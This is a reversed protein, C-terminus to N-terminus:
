KNAPAAATVIPNVIFGERWIGDIVFPACGATTYSDHSGAELALGGLGAVLAQIEDHTLTCGIQLPFALSLNKLCTELDQLRAKAKAPLPKIRLSRWASFPFSEVAICQSSMPAKPHGLRLCGLNDLSDFVTIAFSVFSTYNAPKVCGPLGTKAPTNLIRECLRSHRLGNNPDKWAQPGDILLFPSNVRACLEVLATAIACPTPSSKDQYHSRVAEVAIGTPERYLVVIGIDSWTQYALDVSVIAM